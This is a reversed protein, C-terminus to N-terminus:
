YALRRYLNSAELQYSHNKQDLIQKLADLVLTKETQQMILSLAKMWEAEEQLYINSSFQQVFDFKEFAETAQGEQLFCYGAILQMRGFYPHDGPLTEVLSIAETYQHNNLFTKIDRIDDTTASLTNFPKLLSQELAGNDLYEQQIITKAIPVTIQTQKPLNTQQTDKKYFFYFAIFVLALLGIIFWQRTGEKTPKASTEKSDEEGKLVEEVMVLLRDREVAEAGGMLQQIFGLESKLEPREAMLDDLAVVEEPPLNGQAYARLKDQLEDSIEM